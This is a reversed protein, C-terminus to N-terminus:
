QGLGTWEYRHTPKADNDRPRKEMLKGERGKRKKKKLSGM